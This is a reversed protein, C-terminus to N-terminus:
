KRHSMINSSRSSSHFYRSYSLKDYRLLALYFVFYIVIFTFKYRAATGFNFVVMGNITMSVFLLINLFNIKQRIKGSIINKKNIIIIMIIIVINEVTQIVQFLNRAEWPLPKFMMYIFSKVAVYILSIGSGLPEYLLRAAGWDYFKGTVKVMNEALLALRLRDIENYYSGVIPIKEPIFIGIFVAFFFVINLMKNRREFISFLMVTLLIMLYNQFKLFLLPLGIFLGLLKQEKIIILYVSFFMIILLLTERLALSSYLLLSPFLLFFYDLTNNNFKKNIFVFLLLFFLFNIMCISQISNIFPIPVLTFFLSSMVLPNFIGRIINDGKEMQFNSIEEFSLTTLFSRIAVSAHLYGYQDGFYGSNFLVDNLLFVVVIHMFLLAVKLPELRLYALVAVFFVCVIFELNIIDYLFNM